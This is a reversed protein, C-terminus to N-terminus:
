LAGAELMFLLLEAANQEAKRKTTGKGSTTQEINSIKCEVHFMQAHSLGEVKLVKYTPLPLKMAQILEQLRTKPDKYSVISVEELLKEYWTLIRERCIELGNDLYIAGIIAEMADALISSRQGGGSKTEGIGLFLYDGLHMSRALDALLEGNVLNSRLRSLDGERLDPYRQFLASAIVFNLIADGLFELRENSLKSNISRHSLAQRLLSEDKFTYGLTKYINAIKIKM